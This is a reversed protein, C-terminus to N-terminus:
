ILILFLAFVGGQGVFHFAEDLLVPLFDFGERRFHLAFQHAYNVCGIDGHFKQAFAAAAVGHIKVGFRGGYEGHGCFYGGYEALVAAQIQLPINVRVIVIRPSDVHHIARRAPHLPPPLIPPLNLFRRYNQTLAIFQLIPKQM